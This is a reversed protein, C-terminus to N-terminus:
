PIGCRQCKTPNSWRSKRICHYERCYWSLALELDVEIGFVFMIVVVGVRKKSVYPESWRITKSVSGLSTPSSFAVGTRVRSGRIVDSWLYVKPEISNWSLDQTLKTTETLIEPSKYCNYRTWILKHLSQLWFCSISRLAQVMDVAWTREQVSMRRMKCLCKRTKLILRFRSFM